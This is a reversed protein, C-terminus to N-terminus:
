DQFKVGSGPKSSTTVRQEDVEKNPGVTQFDVTAREVM